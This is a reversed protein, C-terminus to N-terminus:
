QKKEKFGKYDRQHLRNRKPPIVPSINQKDLYYLIKNTDYTRKSFVSKTNINEILHITAKRDHPSRNAVIFNIPM